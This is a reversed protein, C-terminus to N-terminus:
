WDGSRIEMSIAWRCVIYISSDQCVFLGGQHIKLLDNILNVAIKIQYDNRYGELLQAFQFHVGRWSSAEDKIGGVMEVLKAEADRTATFM